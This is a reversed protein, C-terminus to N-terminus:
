LMLSELTESGRQIWMKNFVDRRSGGVDLVESVWRNAGVMKRLVVCDIGQAAAAECLPQDFEDEFAYLTPYHNQFDYYLGNEEDKLKVYGRYLVKLFQRLRRRVFGEDRQMQPWSYNWVSEVPDTIYNYFEDASLRNLYQKKYTKYVQEFPVNLFKFAHLKNLAIVTSYSLLHAPSDPEFYFFTGCYQTNDAPQYYFGGMGQQYRIVPISFVVDGYFGSEQQVILPSAVDSTMMAYKPNTHQPPLQQEFRPTAGYRAWYTAMNVLPRQSRPFFLHRKFKELNWSQKKTIVDPLLPQDIRQKPEPILWHELVETKLFDSSPIAELSELLGSSTLHEVFALMEMRKLAARQIPKPQESLKRFEATYLYGITIAHLRSQHVFAQLATRQMHHLQVGIRRATCAARHQRWDSAQCRANCYLVSGCPCHLLCRSPEACASCRQM